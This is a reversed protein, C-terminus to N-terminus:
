LLRYATVLEQFVQTYAKTRYDKLAADEVLYVTDAGYGILTDALESVNHGILVAATEQNLDGALEQARGLLEVAVRGLVGGRQEAFVWVGQRDSFDPITRPSADTLIATNPCTDMCAGCATCREGVHAKDDNMEMADYPCARLCRRCGDCLDIEVWVTM